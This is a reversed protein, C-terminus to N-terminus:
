VPASPCCFNGLEDPSRFLHVAGHATLEDADRFGWLVGATDVGANRGTDIDVSTDGIYLASERAIHEEQLLNLLATPDPKLPIGDRQGSIRGFMVPFLRDILGSVQPQPKNSLVALFMGADRLRELLQPIGPYPVTMRLPDKNYAQMYATYVRDFLDRPAHTRELMRRILVRAGDGVMLRYDDPAIPPLSVSELANNAYYAITPLTNLLTGDLDFICAKKM